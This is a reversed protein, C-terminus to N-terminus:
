SVGRSLSRLIQLNERPTGGEFVARGSVVVDAECAVERINDKTIGGDIVWQIAELGQQKKGEKVKALISPLYHCDEVEPETTLVIVFKLYPMCHELPPLLTGPNFALGAEVGYRSILGLTRRPYPCAEYHVAIRDAGYKAIEPIVWEPNMMMLHVDFPLKSLPRLDKIIKIGLNMVPVFHGDEIDFHIMDAGGEELARLSDELDLM